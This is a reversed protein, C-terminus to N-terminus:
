LGSLGRRAVWGVRRMAVMFGALDDRLDAITMNDKTIAARQGGVSEQCRVGEAMDGVSSLRKGTRLQEIQAFAQERTLTLKPEDLGYYIGIISAMTGKGMEERNFQFRAQRECGYDSKKTSPFPSLLIAPDSKRQFCITLHFIASRPSRLSPIGWVARAEKRLNVDVQLRGVIRNNGVDVLSMNGGRGGWEEVRGGLLLGLEPLLFMM